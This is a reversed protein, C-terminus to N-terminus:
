TLVHSLVAGTVAQKLSKWTVYELTSYLNKSLGLNTVIPPVSHSCMRCMKAYKRKYKPYRCSLLFFLIYELGEKNRKTEIWGKM